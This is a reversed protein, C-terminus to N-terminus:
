SPEDCPYVFVRGEVERPPDGFLDMGADEWMTGCRDCVADLGAMPDIHALSMNKLRSIRLLLWRHGRSGLTFIAILWCILRM